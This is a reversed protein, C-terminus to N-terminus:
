QKQVGLPLAAPAIIGTEPAAEPRMAGSNTAALGGFILLTAALARIGKSEM